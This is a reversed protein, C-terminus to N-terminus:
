LSSYTGTYNEIGWHTLPNSRSKMKKKEEKEEEEGVGGRGRRRRGRGKGRRRRRRRRGGGGGGGGGKKGGGGRRKKELTPPPFLGPFVPFHTHKPNMSHFECIMLIRYFLICKQKDHKIWRCWIHKIV